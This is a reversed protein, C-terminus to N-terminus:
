SFLPNLFKQRSYPSISSSFWSPRFEVSDQVIFVEHGSSKLIESIRHLQKVGGIPKSIDPFALVWFRYTKTM